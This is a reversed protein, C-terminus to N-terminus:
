DRRTFFFFCDYALDPSPARGTGEHLVVSSRDKRSTGDQAGRIRQATKEYESFPVHGTAKLSITQSEWLTTSHDLSRNRSVIEKKKTSVM